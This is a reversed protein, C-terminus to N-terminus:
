FFGGWLELIKNWFAEFAAQRQRKNQKNYRCSALRLRSALVKKGNKKSRAFSFSGKLFEAECGL